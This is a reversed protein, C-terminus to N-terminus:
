LISKILQKLLSFDNQPKDDGGLIRPTRVGTSINLCFFAIQIGWCVSWNHGFWLTHIMFNDM